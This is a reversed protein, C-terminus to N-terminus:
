EAVPFIDTPSVAGAMPDPIGALLAIISRAAVAMLVAIGDTAAATYRFSKRTQAQQLPAVPMAQVTTAGALVTGAVFVAPMFNKM